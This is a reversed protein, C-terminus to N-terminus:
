GGAQVERIHAALANSFASVVAREKQDPFPVDFITVMTSDSTEGTIGIQRWITKKMRVEFLELGLKCDLLYVKVQDAKLLGMIKDSADATATHPSIDFNIKMVADVGLEKTLAAMRKKDSIITAAMVSSFIGPTLIQKDWQNLANAIKNSKSQGIAKYTPLNAIKERPLVQWGMTATLQNRTVEYLKAGFHQDAMAKSLQKLMDGGEAIYGHFGIIAVTKVNKIQSHEITTCASNSLQFFLALFLVKGIM